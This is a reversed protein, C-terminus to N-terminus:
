SPLTSEGTREQGNPFEFVSLSGSVELYAKEITGTNKIGKMRLQMFLEPKSLSEAELAEEIVAGNSILQVAKGEVAVEFKPLINTAKNLLSQLGVVFTVVVMGHLLPVDDYLMPDGVASGLAIIVVFEFPTLQSMGRKGIFRVAFLTYVYMIMTRFIIEFIFLPNDGIFIRQFDFSLAEM